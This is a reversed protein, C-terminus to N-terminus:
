AGLGFGGERRVGAGVRTHRPATRQDTAHQWGKPCEPAPSNEIIGAIPGMAREDSVYAPEELPGEM